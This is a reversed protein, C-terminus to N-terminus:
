NLLHATSLIEISAPQIADFFYGVQTSIDLLLSHGLAAMIEWDWCYEDPDGNYLVTLQSIM